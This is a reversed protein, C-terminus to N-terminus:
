GKPERGFISGTTGELQPEAKPWKLSAIISAALVVLVVGLSLMIPIHVWNEILM